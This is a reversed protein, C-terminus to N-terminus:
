FIGTKIAGRKTTEGRDEIFIIKDLNYSKIINEYRVFSPKKEEQQCAEIYVHIDHQLVKADDMLASSIKSTNKGVLEKAFSFNEHTDFGVILAIKNEEDVIEWELVYTCSKSKIHAHFLNNKISPMTSQIYQRPGYTEISM